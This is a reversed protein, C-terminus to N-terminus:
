RLRFSVTWRMRVSVAHGEREAPSFRARRAAALAAEDFGFGAARVVRADQVTGQASVIIALAVDAEVQEARAGPPYAPSLAGRLRAPVSVSSESWPGDGSGAATAGSSSIVLGNPATGSARPHESGTSKVSMAFRPTQVIPAAEAPAEQAPAPINPLPLHVQNPDHPRADHDSPVPYPHTHMARAPAEAAKAGSISRELPTPASLPEPQDEITVVIAAAPAQTGPDPAHGFATFLAAHAAVSTV